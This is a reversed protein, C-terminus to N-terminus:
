YGHCAICPALGVKAQCKPCRVRRRLKFSEGIPIGALALKRVAPDEVMDIREVEQITLGVADAIISYESIGMEMVAVAAAVYYPVKIHPKLPHRWLRSRRNRRGGHVSLAEELACVSGARQQAEDSM